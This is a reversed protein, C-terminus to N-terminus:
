RQQTQDLQTYARATERLMERHRPSARRYDALLKLEDSPLRMLEPEVIPNQPPCDPDLSVFGPTLGMAVEIRRAVDEGMDRAGSLLQSVHAPVLGTDSAFQRQSKYGRVLRILNERRIERIAKM